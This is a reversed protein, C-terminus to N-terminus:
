DHTEKLAMFLAFEDLWAAHRQCFAEYQRGSM